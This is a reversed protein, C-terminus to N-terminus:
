NGVHQGGYDSTSTFTQQQLYADLNSLRYKVSRGIKIYPILSGKRRDKQLKHISCGLFLAAEKENLLKRM